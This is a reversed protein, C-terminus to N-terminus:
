LPHPALLDFPPFGLNRVIGFTLVVVFLVYIVWGPLRWSPLSWGTLASWWLRAGWVLMLPLLFLALVNQAVAERLDGHLLAHLCRTAGCGPCHLGTVSHFWCRPYWSKETPPLYYLLVFLAPVLATAM